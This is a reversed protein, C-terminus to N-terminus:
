VVSKESVNHLYAVKMLSDGQQVIYEKFTDKPKEFNTIIPKVHEDVCDAEPKGPSCKDDTQYQDNQGTKDKNESIVLEKDLDM